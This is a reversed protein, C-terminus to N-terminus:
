PCREDGGAEPTETKQAATPVPAVNPKKKVTCGVARTFDPIPKEGRMMAEIAREVWRNKAAKPTEPNDDIAGIYRIYLQSDLLFVHPTRTAGFKPYVTQDEDVLYEFPYSQAAARKQMEEFSDEEVILASNPNIAIVPYGKPSYKNHMDNNRQEYLPAYPCHNCTFVVIYGLAGKYDALSVMKNKVSKLSFDEAQDGVAYGCPSFSNSTASSFLLFISALFLPSFFTKKM